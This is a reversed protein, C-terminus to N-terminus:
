LFHNVIMKRAISNSVAMLRNAGQGRLIGGVYEGIRPLRAKFQGVRTTAVVSEIPATTDPQPSVKPMRADELIVPQALESPPM